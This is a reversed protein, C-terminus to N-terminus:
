SNWSQKFDPCRYWNDETCVERVSIDHKEVPLDTVIQEQFCIGITKANDQVASLFRDYFGGGNGLRQCDPSFAVGPVIILNKLSSEPYLGTLHEGPQYFGFPHKETLVEDPFSFGNIIKFTMIETGPEIRPIATIKGTKLAADLLAYTSPERSNMSIFLFVADSTKWLETAEIKKTIIDSKTQKTRSSISDLNKRISSRLAKKTM